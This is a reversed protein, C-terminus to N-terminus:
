ITGYAGMSGGHRHAHASLKYIGNVTLPDAEAFAPTNFVMSSLSDLGGGSFM